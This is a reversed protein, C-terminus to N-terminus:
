YWPQTVADRNANSLGEHEYLMPGRILKYGGGAGSMHYQWLLNGPQNGLIAEHRLLFPPLNSHLLGVSPDVVHYVRRLWM